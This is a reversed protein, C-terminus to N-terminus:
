RQRYRDAAERTGEPDFPRCYRTDSSLRQSRITAGRDLPVRPPDCLGPRRSLHQLRFSKNLSTYEYCVVLPIGVEESLVHGHNYAM